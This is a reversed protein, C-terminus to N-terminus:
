VATEKDYQCNRAPFFMQFVYKGVHFNLCSKVRGSGTRTEVPTGGFLATRKKAMRMATSQESTLYFGQGFDKYKSGKSLDIVEFYENTGHFLKM